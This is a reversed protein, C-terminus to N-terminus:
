IEICYRQGFRRKMVAKRRVAQDNRAAGMIKVAFEKGSGGAM